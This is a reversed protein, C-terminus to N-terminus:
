WRLMIRLGPLFLSPMFVKLGEVGRELGMAGIERIESAAPLWDVKIRNNENHELCRRHDKITTSNSVLANNRNETICTRM